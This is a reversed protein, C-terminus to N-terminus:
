SSAMLSMDTRPVYKEIALQAHESVVNVKDAKRGDQEIELQVQAATADVDTDRPLTIPADKEESSMGIKMEVQGEAKKRKRWGQTKPEKIRDGAWLLGEREKECGCM